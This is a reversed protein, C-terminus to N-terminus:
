INAPLVASNADCEIRVGVVAKARIPGAMQRAETLLAYRLFDM